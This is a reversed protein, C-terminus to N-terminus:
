LDRVPVSATVFHCVWCPEGYHASPAAQEPNVPSILVHVAGWALAIVLVAVGVWVAVRRM